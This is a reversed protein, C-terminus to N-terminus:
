PQQEILPTSVSSVLEGGHYYRVVSYTQDTGDLSAVQLTVYIFDPSLDWMAGNSYDILMGIIGGFILNGFFMMNIDKTIFVKQPKYGELSIDVVYNDGRPLPVVTPTKGAMIPLGSQTKITFDAKDPNSSITLNAQTGSIITACSAVLLMSVAFLFFISFKM